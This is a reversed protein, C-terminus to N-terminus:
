AVTFTIFVTANGTGSSKVILNTGAAVSTNALSAAGVLAGSSTGKAITAVVTSAPNEVTINSATTDKAILYVGTITVATSLGSSGFVSVANTGNTDTAVVMYGAGTSLKAGTVSLSALTSTGVASADIEDSAVKNGYKLAPIYEKLSM